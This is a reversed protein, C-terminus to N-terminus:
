VSANGCEVLTFEAAELWAKILSVAEVLSIECSLSCVSGVGLALENDGAHVYVRQM